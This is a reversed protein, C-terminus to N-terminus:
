KQFETLVTYGTLKGKKNYSESRVVGVNKAYWEVASAKITILMKTSIDYSIKYCEFTGAPTTIDEKAEVKRNSINVSITMIKMGNNSVVVTVRGNDLIDGTKLEAPITMNEVEFTTEMNSYPTLTSEGIYSEMDVYYRGDKCKMELETMFVSDMEVDQYENRIKVTQVGEKIYNDIVTQISTGTLKDKKDYNSHKLVTGKEVPSYFVCEQSFLNTTGLLFVGTLLLIKVKRM